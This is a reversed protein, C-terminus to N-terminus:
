SKAGKREVAWIKENLNDGCCQTPISLKWPSGRERRKERRGKIEGMYMVSICLSIYARRGREIVNIVPSRLAPPSGRNIPFLSSM